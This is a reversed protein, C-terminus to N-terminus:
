GDVQKILKNLGTMVFVSMVQEGIDAFALECDPLAAVRRVASLFVRVGASSVFELDRCCFIIRGHGKDLNTDLWTELLYSNSSDIWGKLSLRCAGAETQEQLQLTDQM